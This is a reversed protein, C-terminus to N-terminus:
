DNIEIECYMRDSEDFVSTRPDEKNLAFRGEFAVADIEDDFMLSKQFEWIKDATLGGGYTELFVTFLNEYYEKPYYKKICSM